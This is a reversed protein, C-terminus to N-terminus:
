GVLVEKRRWSSLFLPLMLVTIDNTTMEQGDEGRENRGDKDMMTM